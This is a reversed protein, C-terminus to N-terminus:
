NNAATAPAQNVGATPAEPNGTSDPIWPFGLVFSQSEDWCYKPIFTPRIAVKNFGGSQSGWPNCKLTYSHSLMYSKMAPVDINYFYYYRDKPYKSLGPQWLTFSKDEKQSHMTSKGGKFVCDAKGEGGFVPTGVKWEWYMGVYGQHTSTVIDTDGTTVSLSASENFRSVYRGGSKGYPEVGGKEKAFFELDRVIPNAKQWARIEELRQELDNDSAGEKYLILSSPRTLLGDSIASYDTTFKDPKTPNRDQYDYYTQQGLGTLSPDQCLFPNKITSQGVSKGPLLGAAAATHCGETNELQMGAAMYVFKNTDNDLTLDPKETSPICRSARTFQPFLKTAVVVGSAWMRKADELDNPSNVAYYTATESISVSRSQTHDYKYEYGAKIGSTGGAVKKIGVSLGAQVSFSLGNNFGAQDITTSCEDLKIYPANGQSEPHGDSKMAVYPWGLIVRVVTIGQTRNLRTLRDSVDTPVGGGLITGKKNLEEIEAKSLSETIGIKDWGRERVDYGPIVSANLWVTGDPTFTFGLGANEVTYERTMIDRLDQKDPTESRSFVSEETIPGAVYVNNSSGLRIPMSIAKLKAGFHWGGYTFVLGDVKACWYRLKGGATPALVFGGVVNSWKNEEHGSKTYNKIGHDLMYLVPVPTDNDDELTCSLLYKPASLQINDYGKCGDPKCWVMLAKRYNTKNDATKFQNLDICDLANVFLDSGKVDKCNGLLKRTKYTLKVKNTVNPQGQTVPDPELSWMDFGGKSYGDTMLVFKQIDNPKQPDKSPLSWQLLQGRRNFWPDRSYAVKDNIYNALKAGAPSVEVNVCDELLGSFGASKSDLLDVMFLKNFTPKKQNSQDVDAAVIRGNIMGMLLCPQATLKALDKDFNAKSFDVRVIAQGLCIPVGRPPPNKQDKESAPATIITDAKLPPLTGAALLVLLGTGLASLLARSHARQLITNRSPTTM